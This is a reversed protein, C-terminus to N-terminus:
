PDERRKLITVAALDGMVNGVTRFIDPVVEVALLIGLLEIPVGLAACIPAMSIFFSVQGPLGVAGVSVAFSVLVATTMQVPTPELGYLHAIVYAVALNAVPSTFRFVAVALPLIVDAIRAPVGLGERAGQLMAPLTALSSQTSFAVVTAPATARLFKPLPVGGAIVALAYAIVTIGITVASVIVVYQALVGAAGLGAQAGVGLSLAFVGFPGAMLVWRVIVIMTEAVARFFAILPDRLERSLQTAAFGFFSAFVVLPTILDDAAARVPNPPALSAIWQALTPPTIADAEIPAAGAIFSAAAAPDVPWLAILAQTAFTSYTAAFLLLVSFLVLARTAMRGTQAADAVSAIGTILLSVILPIVTMRLANLWLAGFAEIVAAADNWFPADAAQIAAGAGLGLVLAILVRTSLANLM